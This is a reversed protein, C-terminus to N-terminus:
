ENEDKRYRKKDPHLRRYRERELLAKKRNKDMQILENEIEISLVTTVGLRAPQGRANNLTVSSKVREMIVAEPYIISKGNSLVIRRDHGNKPRLYYVSLNM